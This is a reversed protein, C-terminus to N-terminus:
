TLTGMTTTYSQSELVPSSPIPPNKPSAPWGTQHNNTSGLCTLSGTQCPSCLPKQWRSCCSSPSFLWLGASVVEVRCFASSPPPQSQIGKLASTKGSLLRWVLLVQGPTSPPFATRQGRHLAQQFGHPWRGPEKGKTRKTKGKYYEDTTKNITEVTNLLM